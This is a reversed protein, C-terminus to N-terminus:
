YKGSIDIEDSASPKPMVVPQVDRVSSKQDPEHQAHYYYFTEDYGLQVNNVIVGLLKGGANQVIQVARRAMNRPYRRHQIVLIYMGVERAVVAADSVGLIPPTDYLVVDFHQGVYEILEAMRHSTLLPLADKSSSVTGGGAAILSLNPASTPQVIEQVTKKGSLYDALGINNSMGLHEHVGPRRLDCDVILVRAGHQAYVFGLNAITFSKGEGAGSSLVCLQTTAGEPKAFEINTRIMRYAELHAVSAIGRHLLKANQGVIGLVPLGLHKEVDEIRKISTDLFEIFFALVVGLVLGAVIGVAFNSWFKPSVYNPPPPAEARDIVEVPSRPLEMEIKAQEVRSEVADYLKIELEEERQANRFPLYKESEQLLSASTAEDVQKQVEDLRAKTVQYEIEFGRKIGALREDLQDQLKDRTAIMARVTPHEPGYDEKLTELHTEADTLNQLLSQATADSIMTTVAGRLQQPTLKKFEELRVSTTVVASRADYLQTQLTQLAMDSLKTTGIIPVDLEKRLREIKEQVLRVRDAQQTVEERLKDIGKQTQQRKVDLRDREFVEAITNAIEAARNPDHDFVSIEILSTDRFRRASLQTKLRKFAVDEAMETDSGPIRRLNLRDIVPYLIKQSQLIEYQTQLFYPDYTAGEREGPMPVTPREPEVKIRTTASYVKPQFMTITFVTLVVLLFVLFVIVKRTRIVRWYDLFHLRTEPSVQTSEM